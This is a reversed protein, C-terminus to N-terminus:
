KMEGQNPKGDLAGSIKALTKVNQTDDFHAYIGETTTIESHGLWKQIDEMPVGEHRLLTACSHRLDHFRIKTMGNDELLKGFNATVWNPRVLDGNEFVYIYDDFQHNYRSGFLEKMKDQKVKMELLKDSIFDSLPLTRFSSKTKTTDRLVLMQKGNVVCEGVTHKITITKYQFDIANWKLGCVEERRLGYYAGMLVAFEMNTGKAAEFLWQLEEENYVSAKFLGKKPKEVRDAVNNVVFGRKFAYQLACRITGHYHRCTNSSTGAAMRERYFAELDEPQIGSLTIHQADFWPAIIHFVNSRLSAQSNLEISDKHINFWMKLFTGFLVKRGHKLASMLDGIEKEPMNPTPLSIIPRGVPKRQSVGQRDIRWSDSFTYLGLSSLLHNTSALDNPDFGGPKEMEALLEEAKRKDHERVKLKLPIWKERRVHDIDKYSFVAYYEGHKERLNGKM